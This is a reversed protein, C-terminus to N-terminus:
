PYGRYVRLAAFFCAGLLAAAFILMVAAKSKSM